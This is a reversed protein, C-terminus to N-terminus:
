YNSRLLLFYKSKFETLNMLAAGVEVNVIGLPEKSSPDVVQHSRCRPTVVIRARGNKELVPLASTEFFVANVENGSVGRASPSSTATKVSSLFSTM